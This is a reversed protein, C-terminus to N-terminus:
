QFFEPFDAMLYRMVAASLRMYGWDSYFIGDSRFTIPTPNGQADQFEAVVDIYTIDPHSAAYIALEKHARDIDTWSDRFSPAKTPSIVYIHIDPLDALIKEALRRLRSTYVSAIRGGRLNFDTQSPVIVVARPDYPTVLRNYYYELDEVNASGVGQRLTPLPELYDNIEHWLTVQRAGLFIVPKASPPNDEAASELALVDPEWILPGEESQARLLDNTINFVTTLFPALLGILIIIRTIKWPVMRKNGFYPAFTFAM